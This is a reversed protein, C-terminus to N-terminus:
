RPGCGTWPESEETLEFGEDGTLGLEQARQKEKEREYL